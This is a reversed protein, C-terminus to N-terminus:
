AKNHPLNKLVEDNLVWNYCWEKDDNEVSVLMSSQVSRLVAFGNFFLLVNVFEDGNGYKIIPVSYIVGPIKIGNGCLRWVKKFAFFRKKIRRKPENQKNAKKNKM